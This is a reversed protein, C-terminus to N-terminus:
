HLKTLDAEIEEMFLSNKLVLEFDQNCTVKPSGSHSEPELAPEKKCNTGLQLTLLAIILGNMTKM